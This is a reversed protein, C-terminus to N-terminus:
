FGSADLGILMAIDSYVILELGRNWRNPRDSIAIASPGKSVGRVVVKLDYRVIEEVFGGPADTVTDRYTGKIDIGWQRLNAKGLRLNALTPAGGQDSSARHRLDSASNLLSFSLTEHLHQHVLLAFLNQSGGDESCASVFSNV